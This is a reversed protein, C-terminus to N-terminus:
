IFLWIGIAELEFRLITIGTSNSIEETVDLEKEPAPELILEIREAVKVAAVRVTTIVPKM